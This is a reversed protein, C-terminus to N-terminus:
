CSNENILNTIDHENPYSDISLKINRIEERILKAANIVIRNAEDDVNIQRKEYWKEHIIYNAMNKFCLVNKHGNTKAFHLHDSYRDKM